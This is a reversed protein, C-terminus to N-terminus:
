LLVVQITDSAIPLNHIGIRVQAFDSSFLGKFLTFNLKKFVQLSQNMFKMGFFIIQCGNLLFFDLELVFFDLKAVFFFFDIQFNTLKLFTNLLCFPGFGQDLFEFGFLGVELFGDLFTFLADKLVFIRELFDLVVGFRFESGFVEFLGFCLVKRVLGFDLFYEL